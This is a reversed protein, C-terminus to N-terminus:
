SESESESWSQRQTEKSESGKPEVYFWSEFDGGQTGNGSPLKGGIFNGDLARVPICEEEASLIFDGKLVVFFKGGKERMRSFGFYVDKLWASEIKFTASYIDNSDHYEVNGPVMEYRYNGTEAEEMLVKFLFTDGNITDGNMKRDFKVTVGDSWISDRFEKYTMHHGNETWNIGTVHPLNGHFCDILDFLVPNTYVLKRWTCQEIRVSPNDPDRKSPSITILAIVLCPCEPCEGCERSQKECLYHHISARKAKENELPCIKGCPKETKCDEEPIVRIKFSDRIRNYEYGEHKDCSEPPLNVLETKCEFYELCVVYRKNDAKQAKDAAHCESTKPTLDVTQEECVLIERGCCDIALGPTVVVKNQEGDKKKVELGCVVGWGGVMRNVLWRKENFYRQEASFDRVTMLKGFFYHNREFYPIDCISCKKDPGEKM